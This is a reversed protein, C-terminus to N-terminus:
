ALLFCFSFIIALHCFNLWNYSHYVACSSGWESSSFFPRFDSKSFPLISYGTFFYLQALKGSSDLVSQPTQLLSAPTSHPRRSSYGRTSSVENEKPHAVHGGRRVCGEGPLLFSPSSLSWSRVEYATALMLRGGECVCVCVPLWDQGVSLLTHTNTTPTM